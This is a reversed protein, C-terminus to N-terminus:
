GYAKKPFSPWKNQSSIAPALIESIVCFPRRDLHASFTVNYATTKREGKVLHLVLATTKAACCSGDFEFNEEYIYIGLNYECKCKHVYTCGVGFFLEGARQEPSAPLVSRVASAQFLTSGSPKIQRPLSSLIFCFGLAEICILTFTLPLYHRVTGPPKQHATHKESSLM